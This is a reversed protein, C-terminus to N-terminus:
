GTKSGDVHVACVRHALRACGGCRLDLARRRRRGRGLRTSEEALAVNTLEEEEISDGTKMDCSVRGLAVGEASICSASETGIKGLLQRLQDLHLLVDHAGHLKDASLSHFDCYTCSPPFIEGHISLNVITYCCSLM